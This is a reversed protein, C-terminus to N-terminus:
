ISSLSNFRNHNIMISEIKYGILTGIINILILDLSTINVFDLGLFTLLIDIVSIMISLLISFIICNSINRFKITILPLLFGLPIFLILNEMFYRILFKSTFLVHPLNFSIFTITLSNQIFTKNLPFFRISIFFLSYFLLLLKVMEETRNIKVDKGIEMKIFILRVVLYIPLLLLIVPWHITSINGTNIFLFVILSLMSFSIILFSLLFFLNYRKKHSLSYSNNM